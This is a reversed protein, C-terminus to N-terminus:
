RAAGAGVRGAVARVLPDAPDKEQARALTQRAADVNGTHLHADAIRALTAATLRPSEPGELAEYEILARYAAASRGRREAAEALYYFALPDVPFRAVAQELTSEARTVDGAMLLARGYLTFAESSSDTAVASELAGLAKRLEVRGGNEARELWLRGLAVYTQSEDPFQRAANGLRLVAREVQGDRAYGMALAVERSVGPDLAALAELQRNREAFRELRGYVDALEERAQLLAPNLGVSRELAALADNPRNLARLSVGLLYHAEAFGDDIALAQRATTVAASPQGLKVQALALKYLVRTSRDDVHLSERYRDIAGAYRGLADHVDGLIERPRPALPDLAVARRLDKMAAEHENRRRYAEGRKLHAAMSDPKKSIAVSFFEVAAFSDDRSLAADGEEILSQYAAERQAIGVGYALVAALVLVVALVAVRKVGPHYVLPPFM